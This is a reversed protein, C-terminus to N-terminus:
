SEPKANTQPRPMAGLHTELAVVANQVIPADALSDKLQMLRYRDNMNFAMLTLLSHELGSELLSPYERSLNHQVAALITQMNIPRGELTLLRQKRATEDLNNADAVQFVDKTLAQAQQIWLRLEPYTPAPPTYTQGRLTMTLARWFARLVTRWRPKTQM